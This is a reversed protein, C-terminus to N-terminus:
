SPTAAAREAQKVVERAQAVLFNCAEHCLLPLTSPPPLPPSPLDSIEWLRIKLCGSCTSDVLARAQPDTIKQTVRYMGTQRSLTDRLTVPTLSHHSHSFWLGTMAPYFYDLARRLSPLDPLSLSWGRVLDPTTKLPRFKGAADLNALHRADTPLSYPTLDTLLADEHHRAEWGNPLPSLLIQGIQNGGSHLWAALDLQINRSM